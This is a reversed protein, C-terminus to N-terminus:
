HNLKFLSWAIRQLITADQTIIEADAQMGTKLHIPKKVDSASLTKFDVKSLFVSDKYPIDSIYKIRGRIMGFEEFPYGKLKVLVQQGLRVKGINNQSIAM